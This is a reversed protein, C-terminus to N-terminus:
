PKVPEPNSQEALYARKLFPVAGDCVTAKQHEGADRFADRALLLLVLRDSYHQLVAVRAQDDLTRM